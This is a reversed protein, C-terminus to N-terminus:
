FAKPKIPGYLFDLCIRAPRDRMPHSGAAIFLRLSTNHRQTDM